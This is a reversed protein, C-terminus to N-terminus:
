QQSEKKLDSNFYGVIYKFTNLATDIKMIRPKNARKEKVTITGDKLNVDQLVYVHWQRGDLMKMGTGMVFSHEKEKDMREFLEMVEKKYGNLDLNFDKEAIVRPKIGTLVEMFHSPMNKEFTYTNVTDALRCILPKSKYKKEYKDISIDVSRVIENPQRRYLKEYKGVVANVPVTYKEKNGNQNYLYCNILKPNKDDYQIQEQLVKRGNETQSLTELTSMLYCDSFHQKAHEFGDIDSNTISAKFVPKYSNICSIM